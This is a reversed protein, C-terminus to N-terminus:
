FFAIMAREQIELVVRKLFDNKLGLMVFNQHLAYGKVTAVTTALTKGTEEEVRMHQMHTVIALDREQMGRIECTCGLAGAAVEDHVSAVRQFLCNDSRKRASYAVAAIIQAQNSFSIDALEEAAALATDGKAIRASKIACEGLLEFDEV